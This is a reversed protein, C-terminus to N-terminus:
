RRRVVAAQDMNPNIKLASLFNSEANSLYEARNDSNFLLTYCEGLLVYSDPDDHETALSNRCYKIARMYDAKGVEAACLGYYAAAKHARYLFQIGTRHKSM